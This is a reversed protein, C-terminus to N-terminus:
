KSRPSISYKYIKPSLLVSREEKASVSAPVALRECAEWDLNDALAAPLLRVRLSSDGNVGLFTALSLALLTNRTRQVPSSPVTSVTLHPASATSCSVPRPVFSLSSALSFSRPLLKFVALAGM